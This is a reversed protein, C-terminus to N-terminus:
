TVCANKNFNQTHLHTKVTMLYMFYLRSPKLLFREKKLYLDHFTTVSHLDTVHLWVTFHSALRPILTAQKSRATDREKPSNELSSWGNNPKQVDDRKHSTQANSACIVNLGIVCIRYPFRQLLTATVGLFLINERKSFELWRGCRLHHDSISRSLVSLYFSTQASISPQM